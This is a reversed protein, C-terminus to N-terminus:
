KSHFHSVLVLGAFIKSGKMPKSKDDCFQDQKSRCSVV